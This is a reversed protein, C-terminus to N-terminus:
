KTFKWSCGFQLALFIVWYFYKFNSALEADKGEM